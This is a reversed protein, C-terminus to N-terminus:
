RRPRTGAYSHQRKQAEFVFYEANRHVRVGGFISTLKNRYWDERKTVLWMTGGLALRNFGKEIFRKAVSFDSHYPPNCLIKTFERESLGDYAESLAITVGDVNNGAINTRAAEIADPDNDVMYVQRAAVLKAAFIGVVGYGCGLDLVKDERAFRVLSLMALTGPDIRRPSFLSPATVFKFQFGGIETEIM